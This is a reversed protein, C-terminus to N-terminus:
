NNKKTEIRDIHKEWITQPKKPKPERSFGNHVGVVVAKTCNYFAHLALVAGIVPALLVTFSMLILYSIRHM